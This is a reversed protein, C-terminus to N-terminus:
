AGHFMEAIAEREKDDYWPGEGAAVNERMHAQSSTAPIVSTVRFDSLIWKLCVQAWTTVREDLFPALQEAPPEKKVLAGTGLPEMVLVGIGLKAAAPLIKKEVFRDAVNYPVQIMDIRGTRMVEELEDFAAQNYHTAGIARVEDNRRRKELEPLHDKWSRLNHIQYIEVEGGYLRLANDIQRVGEQPTQAWVKTAVIAEDRRNRVCDGLVEEAAGYMPSTDYLRLGRELAERVMRKRANREAGEVDFTKWTGMGVVPITMDTSGLPREEVLIRVRASGSPTQADSGAGTGRPWTVRDGM